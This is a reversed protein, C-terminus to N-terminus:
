ASKLYTDLNVAKAHHAACMSMLPAKWLNWLDVAKGQMADITSDPFEAWQEHTHRQCGIKMFEGSILIRWQENLILLPAIILKEGALDAGAMNAGDFNAGILYANTLKACRLDAGDLFTGKLNACTLDANTLNANTLCTGNLTAGSLDADSLDASDLYASILYCGSLDAGSLDADNLLVQKKVAEEVCSKLSETELEFIVSNSWRNKIKFVM